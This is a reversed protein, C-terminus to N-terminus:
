STPTVPLGPKLHITKGNMVFIKQEFQARSPARVQVDYTGQRMWLSKLQGTTGAFAGNIYVDADKIKTDLKVLGANPHSAVPYGGYHPGYGNYGWPGFSPGYGIGGRVGFRGAADSPVAVMLAACAILLGKGILKGFRAAMIRTETTLKM